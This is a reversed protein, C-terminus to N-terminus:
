AGHKLGKMWGVATAGKAKFNIFAVELNRLAKMQAKEEGERLMRCFQVAAKVVKLLEKGRQKTNKGFLATRAIKVRKSAPSRMVNKLAERYAACEAEAHLAGILLKGYAKSDCVYEMRMTPEVSSSATFGTLRNTMMEKM